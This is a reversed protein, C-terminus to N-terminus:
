KETKNKRKNDGKGQEKGSKKKSLASKPSSSQAGRSLNKSPNSRKVIQQLKNLEKQLDATAQKVGETILTRLIKPDASPEAEVEMVTAETKEQELMDVAMKKLRINSDAESRKNEITLWATQFVAKVIKVTEDRTKLFLLNEETSLSLPKGAEHNPIAKEFESYCTNRTIGINMFTENTIRDAEKSMWCAFKAYPCPLNESFSQHENMLMIIIRKLGLFFQKKLDEKTGTMVLDQVAMIHKKCSKCFAVRDNEVAAALTKFEETEMIDQSSSLKFEFRASRPMFAEDDMRNKSNKMENIRTKIKIHEKLVDLVVEQIADPRLAVAAKVEALAAESPTKNPAVISTKEFEVTENTSTDFRARKPRAQQAPAGQDQITM